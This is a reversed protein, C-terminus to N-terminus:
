TRNALFYLSQDLTFGQDRLFEAAARTNLVAAIFHAVAVDSLTKEPPISGRPEIPEIALIEADLVPIDPHARRFFRALLM